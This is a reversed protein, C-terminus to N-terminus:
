APCLCDEGVLGDEWHSPYSALTRSQQGHWQGTGLGEGLEPELRLPMRPGILM